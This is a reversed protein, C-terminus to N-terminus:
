DQKKVRRRFIRFNCALTSDSNKNIRMIGGANKFAGMYSSASFVTVLKRNAFFEFGGDVVQHARVILDVNMRTCFDDVVDEALSGSKLEQKSCTFTFQGGFRWSLGRQENPRYGYVGPDPDAWLLDVLLGENGPEQPRLVTRLQDFDHLEPSIGGHTCFIRREVLACFPMADFTDQFVKWLRAGYRKQILEDYFGYIRNIESCEHNGRLLFFNEPYRLKFAFLLLITELGFRGRDVYDGLFLYNSTPPLGGLKFVRLLDTYQGHIDGVLVLPSRLELLSPQRLFLRAVAKCVQM